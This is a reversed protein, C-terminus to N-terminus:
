FDDGRSFPRPRISAIRRPDTALPEVEDGRSFPRPRISAPRQFQRSRVHRITEVASHGHGFQLAVDAPVYSSGKDRRWPQIATASNFSRRARLRDPWDKSTEVASHGHGFQLPKRSSSWRHNTSDGRSFPRPRISARTRGYGAANLGSQDGRSFPRPRISALAAHEETGGM